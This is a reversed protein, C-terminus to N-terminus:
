CWGGITQRLYGKTTLAQEIALREALDAPKGRHQLHWGIRAAREMVEERLARRDVVLRPRAVWVEYATKWGLTRRRWLGNVARIIEELRQEIEAVPLLALEGAWARHERNQRELQGYFRACHPPGHLVLIEHAKLVEAVARTDHARARDLRYVLPAGNAAVDAALVEAVLRADYHAGARLTTRYPLAADAVLLAHVSGNVGHFYMGDMGRMVDAATVTVRTLARRREREMETLTQAKLRAAQRRSLGQVSHRLAEAGVLGRLDRVIDSVKRTAEDNPVARAGRPRMLPEGLRARARWRRATSEHVGAIAAALSATLRLARMNDVGQLMRRREADPESEGRAENPTGTRKARSARRTPRIRGHLLGSAAELLRETTGVRAQLQANERRLRQLQAELSAVQEPKGPRGGPHPSIAAVLGALGRHLITQFHNRSLGLARAAEAVTRKGALVELVVALREALAPAVQPAPTYTRKSKGMAVKEPRLM